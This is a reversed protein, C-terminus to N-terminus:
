RSLKIFKKLSNYSLIYFTLNIIIAIIFKEFNFNQNIIIIYALYILLNLCNISFYNFFTRKNIKLFKKNFIFLLILFITTILPTNLIIFDIILGVILFDVINKPATIILSILFFYTNFSTFNYILIDILLLMYTM